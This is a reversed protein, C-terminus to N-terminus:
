QIPSSRPPLDSLAINKELAQLAAKIEIGGAYGTLNGTSAIIRHCPIVISIPNKGNAAGVARFAHPRGIKKAIDGYTATCGYPVEQVARWVQQQFPTGLCAKRLEFTNLTGSFYAKLQSKAANFWTVNKVWEESIIGDGPKNMFKIMHLGAEDGAILVPAFPSPMTCYFMTLTQVDLERTVARTVRWKGFQQCLEEMSVHGRLGAM